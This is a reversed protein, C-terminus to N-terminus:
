EASDACRPTFLDHFCGHRAFMDFEVFVLNFAVLRFVHSLMERHLVVHFIEAFKRVKLHPDHFGKLVQNRVVFLPWDNLACFELREAGGLDATLQV